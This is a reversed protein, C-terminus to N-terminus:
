TINYQSKYHKQEAHGQYGQVLNDPVPNQQQTSFSQHNYILGSGLGECLVTGNRCAQISKKNYLGCM